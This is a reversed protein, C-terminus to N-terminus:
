RSKRCERGSAEGRRLGKFEAGALPLRPPLHATPLACLSLEARALLPRRSLRSTAPPPRALRSPALSRSAVAASAGLAGTGSHARRAGASLASSSAFHVVGSCQSGRRRRSVYADAVVQGALGGVPPALHAGAALGASRGQRGSERDDVTAAPRWHRWWARMFALPARAFPLCTCPELRM